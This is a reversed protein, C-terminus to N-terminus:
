IELRIGLMYNLDVVRPFFDRYVQVAQKVQEVDATLGVYTGYFVEKVGAKDALTLRDEVRELSVVPRQTNPMDFVASLGSDRAVLLGRRITEKNAEEEDRFHVHCDVVM